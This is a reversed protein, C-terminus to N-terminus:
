NPWSLVFQSFANLCRKSCVHRWMVRNEADRKNFRITMWTEPLQPPIPKYDFAGDKNEVQVKKTCDPADCEIFTKYSM